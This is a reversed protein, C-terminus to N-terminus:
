ERNALVMIRSEAGTSSRLLVVLSPCQLFPQGLKRIARTILFNLEESDEVRDSDIFRKRKGMEAQSTTPAASASDSTTEIFEREPFADDKPQPPYSNPLDLFQVPLNKL